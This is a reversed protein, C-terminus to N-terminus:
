RNASFSSVVPTIEPELALEGSELMDLATKLLPVVIDSRSWQGNKFPAPSHEGMMKVVRDIRDILGQECYVTFRPGHDRKQKGTGRRQLTEVRGRAEKVVTTSKADALVEQREGAKHRSM